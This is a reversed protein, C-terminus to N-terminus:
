GGVVDNAVEGGKFMFGIGTLSVALMQGCYAFFQGAGGAASTAGKYYMSLFVGVLMCICLKLGCAVIKKLYRVGPSRFGEEYINYIAFPAFIRRICLEILVQYVCFKAAISAIFAGLFPIALVVYCFLGWYWAGTHNGMAANILDIAQDDLSRGDVAPTISGALTSYLALALKVILAIIEPANILIIGGICIEIITKFVAQHAEIGKDLNQVLRSLAVIVMLLFAIYTLVDTFTGISALITGEGTDYSGITIALFPNDATPGEDGIGMHTAKDDLAKTISDTVGAIIYKAMAKQIENADSAHTIPLPLLFSVIFSVIIGYIIMKNKKTKISNM